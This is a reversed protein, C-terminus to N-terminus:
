QATWHTEDTGALWTNPDGVIITRRDQRYSQGNAKYIKLNQKTNWLCECNSAYKQQICTAKEYLWSTSILGCVTLSSDLKRASTGEKAAMTECSEISSEMTDSREQKYKADARGAEGAGRTHTQSTHAQAWVYTSHCPHPHLGFFLKNKSFPGRHITSWDRVQSGEKRLKELM